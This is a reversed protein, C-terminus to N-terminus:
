SSAASLHDLDLRDSTLYSAASLSELAAARGEVSVYRGTATIRRVLTSVLEDAKPPATMLTEFVFLLEVEIADAQWNPKVAVRIERVARLFRGEESDRNHREIVRRQLPAVLSTFDDPFAARSRKRGLAEGLSRAEAETAAGVLRDNSFCAVAAKEVTTVLELDAALNADGLGSVWAYRPIRGLRVLQMKEAPIPVLACVEVYPRDACSRVIDCTQSVMMCGATDLTVAALDPEAGDGQLSQALEESAPTGPVALHALHVAPLSGDLILDGQRWLGLQEDIRNIEDLTM